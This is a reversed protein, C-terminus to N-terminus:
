RKTYKPPERLWDLVAGVGLVVFGAVLIPIAPAHPVLGATVIGGFFTAFGLCTAAGMRAQTYKYKSRQVGRRSLTLSAGAGVGWRVRMQPFFAATLFYVALALLPILAGLPM